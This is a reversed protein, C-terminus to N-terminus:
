SNLQEEFAKLEDATDIEIIQKRDIPCVTLNLIDLNRDVVEDWFLQEHGEKEYEKLICDRLTEIDKQAFWSIGCM